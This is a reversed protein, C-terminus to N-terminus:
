GPEPFRVGAHPGKVDLTCPIGCTKELFEQLVAMDNLGGHQPKHGLLAWALGDLIHHDAEFDGRGGSSAAPKAFRVILARLEHENLM